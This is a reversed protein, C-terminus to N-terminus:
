TTHTKSPIPTERPRRTLQAALWKIGAIMPNNKHLAHIPRIKAEGTPKHTNLTGKMRFPVCKECGHQCM